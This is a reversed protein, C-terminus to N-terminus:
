TEDCKKNRLVQLPSHIRGLDTFFAAAAFWPPRHVYSRRLVLVIVSALLVLIIVDAFAFSSSTALSIDLISITIVWHSRIGGGARTISIKAMCPFPIFFFTNILFIVLLLRLIFMMLLYLCFFVLRSVPCVTSSSRLLFHSVHRKMVPYTFNKGLQPIRTICLTPIYNKSEINIAINLLFFFFFCSTLAAISGFAYTCSHKQPKYFWKWTFNALVEKTGTATKSFRNM